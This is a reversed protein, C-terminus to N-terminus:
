DDPHVGTIMGAIHEPVVRVLDDPVSQGNTFFLPELGDKLWFNVAAGYTRTEDVKTLICRSLSLANFRRHIERLDSYRSTMSLVLWTETDNGFPVFDKLEDIYSSQRFNRGATDVLVLDRDSYRAKAKLFDEKTYAVEIPVGLIDAYAKLQDVAAIRYTDATIFAIKKGEELKAKAALKALTTTKGVGTPGTVVLYKKEHVHRGSTNVEMNKKLLGYLSRYVADKSLAEDNRYWEKVLSSMWKEILTTSIEHDSLLEHVNRLPGPYASVAGGKIQRVEKEIKRIDEALKSEAHHASPPIVSSQIPVADPDVAAIVELYRKGFFGFIGGKEVEKSNLIVAESGLDNRIMRMAEPMSPATFKRVKM